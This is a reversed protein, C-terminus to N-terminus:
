VWFKRRLGTTVALKFLAELRKGKAALTIISKIRM